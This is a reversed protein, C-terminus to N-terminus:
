FLSEHEFRGLSSLVINYVITYMIGPKRYRKTRYNTLVLLLRGYIVFLRCSIYWEFDDKHVYIVLIVRELNDKYTSLYYHQKIKVQYFLCVSKQQSLLLSHTRLRSLTFLFNLIATIESILTICCQITTERLLRHVFVHNLLM